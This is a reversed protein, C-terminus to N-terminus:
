WKELMRATGHILRNTASRQPVSETGPWDKYSNYHLLHCRFVNREAYKANEKDPDDWWHRM